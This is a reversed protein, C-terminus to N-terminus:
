MQIKCRPFCCSGNSEGKSAGGHPLACVPTLAMGNHDGGKGNALQKTFELHKPALFLKKKRTIQPTQYKEELPTHRPKGKKPKPTTTKKEGMRKAAKGRQVGEEGRGWVWM